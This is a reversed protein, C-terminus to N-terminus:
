NNVKLEEGKLLEDLIEENSISPCILNFVCRNNKLNRDNIRAQAGWVKMQFEFEISMLMTTTAGKGAKMAEQLALENEKQIKVWQVARDKTLREELLKLKRECRQSDCFPKDAMLRKGVWVLSLIVILTLVIGVAHKEIKQKM